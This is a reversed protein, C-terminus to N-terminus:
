EQLHQEAAALEGVDKELGGLNLLTTAVNSTDGLERSIVLSRGYIEKAGKFDRELQLAGAVASLMAAEGAKNGLDHRIQMAQQFSQKATEFDGQDIYVAGM